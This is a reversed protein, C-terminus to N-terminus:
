PLLSNLLDSFPLHWTMEDVQLQLLSYKVSKFVVLRVKLDSFRAGVGKMKCLLSPAQVNQWSSTKYFM